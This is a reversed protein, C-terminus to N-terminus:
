TARLLAKIISMVPCIVASVMPVRMILRAPPCIGKTKPAMSDLPPRAMVTSGEVARFPVMDLIAGQNWFLEGLAGHIRSLAEEDLLGRGVASQNTVVIILFQEQLLRIGEAAHPLACLQGPDTLYGIDEVLVGDRDVFAARRIHADPIGTPLRSYPPRYLCPRCHETDPPTM